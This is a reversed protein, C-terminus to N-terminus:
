SLSMVCVLLEFNLRKVNLLVDRKKPALRCTTELFFRIENTM